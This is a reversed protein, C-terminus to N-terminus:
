KAPQPSATYYSKYKYYYYESSDAAVANLALGLINVRRQYLLDLAARAIRASTFNSRLVFVVGETQPALTAVDDAAMVPASDLLVLDYAAQLEAFLSKTPAGLFLESPNRATRGRTILSLNPTGTPQAVAKWDAERTLIESLGAGLPKNFLEHLTGKRLDADLLLVRAGAEALTTALNAATVSKGESPISSTVLLLKPLKGNEGMYLLSSRLNRYAEAFAHRDDQPHILDLRGNANLTVERPVQCLVPEDFIDQLDTFSAVRDDFRDLLLLLGFSLALGLGAAILVNTVAADTNPQAPCARELITVSEPNIDKDSALSQMTAQLRDFQGQLRTNNAKIKQYEAMKRSADLSREEWEAIGKQTTAIQIEISSQRNALQERSQDKLIELLKEKQTLKDQLEVMKPHKPRLFESLEKQEAKLMQIEQRIKLYDADAGILTSLSDAGGAAGDVAAAGDKKQQRELNQDLSLSKLLELESQLAALQSNLKALYSAASNGQEQLFVVSNSSQFALLEAEGRDLEKERRSLEAMIGSLTSESASGRIEKKLNIYEDMCAQLYATTYEPEEGVARMDFMTTKPIVNFQPEVKCPKLDQKLERVRKEARNFVTQSRMLAVQTTLFNSLEELYTTGTGGQTQIKINVIMKGVSTYAPPASWQRWGQIGLGACVLLPVLWWRRRLQNKFRHLQNQFRASRVSRNEAVPAASLENM